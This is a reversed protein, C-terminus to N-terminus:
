IWWVLFIAGLFLFTRFLFDSVEEHKRLSYVANVLVVFLLWLIMLPTFTM